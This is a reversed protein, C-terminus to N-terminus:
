RAKCTGYKHIVYSVAQKLLSTLKKTNFGLYDFTRIIDFVLICKESYNGHKFFEGSTLKRICLNFLRKKLYPYKEHRYLEKVVKIEIDNVDSMSLSTYMGKGTIRYAGMVKNIFIGKGNKLLLHIFHNDRWYRYKFYEQLPFCKNRYMITLPQTIWGPMNEHSYYFVEPMNKLVASAVSKEFKCGAELYRIYDHSCISISEDREMENVQISLKREDTWYDDGECIATYKGRSAVRAFQSNFSIVNGGPYNFQSLSRDRLFLRIKDPYREAFETCIERTGDISGDEGILIEFPFATKQSVISEICERIYPAHQYTTVIVSVLPKVKNVLKDIGLYEKQLKFRSEFEKEVIGPSFDTVDESFDPNKRQIM